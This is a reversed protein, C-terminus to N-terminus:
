KPPAYRRAILLSIEFLLYSPVALVMQSFVDPGPTLVAAVLLIAVFIHRRYGALTKPDVVGLRALGIVVLPL